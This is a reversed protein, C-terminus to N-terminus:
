FGDIFDQLYKKEDQSLSGLPPMYNNKVMFDIALGNQRTLYGRSFFGEDNHCKVCTPLHLKEESVKGKLAFPIKRNDRDVVQLKGYTKVRLNMVAITLRDKVSAKLPRIARPGNSHCQFCSVKFEIEEGNKFQQFLVTKDKVIIRLEDWESENLHPGGHSQKMDWIDSGDKYSWSVKNFVVKDDATRSEESPFTVPGCAIFSILIFLHFLNNLM